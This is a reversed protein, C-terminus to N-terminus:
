TKLLHEFQQGQVKICKEMRRRLSQRCRQFIGPNNRFRDTSEMIRIWLQEENHIEVAYVENKMFGWFSFDLPNLDPSRAPWPVPGGRGIWM